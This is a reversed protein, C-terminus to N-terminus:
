GEELRVVVPGKRLPCWDPVTVKYTLDEYEAGMPRLVCDLEDYYNRFMARCGPCGESEKTVHETM